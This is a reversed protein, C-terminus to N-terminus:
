LLAEDALPTWLYREGSDPLVTVITKGSMEPRKALRATAALNAGSSIGVLIGEARALALSTKTAERDSVTLIDDIVTTDLIEPVFGAGIGQIYHPGPKKGSLVACTEPEVAVVIISSRKEKLFRGVGTLTGGTGVGAVFADVSGDTDEWIEVATGERHARPNAPNLFQRLRVAKPNKRLIEDAKEVAAGMLTGQTLVVKAGLMQLMAVRERSMSEPMVITIPYGFVAAASALAIGTNGSSASVIMAGDQLTGDEQAERLMAVAIRDKVSGSPNRSEIKALIRAPLKEKAAYRSLEVLPTQGITATIDVFIPM